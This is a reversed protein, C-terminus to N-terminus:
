AADAVIGYDIFADVGAVTRAASVREAVVLRLEVHDLVRQYTVWRMSSTHSGPM